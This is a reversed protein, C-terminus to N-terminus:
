RVLQFLKIQIQGFTIKLQNGAQYPTKGLQPRLLNLFAM